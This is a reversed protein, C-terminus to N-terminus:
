LYIGALIVLAFVFILLIASVLDCTSFHLQKMRTRGAGGRYCRCDMADALEDARRTSSLLLPILIPLLAKIRKFISGSEFDTGRAKQASIIKGTEETLTPVFRLALTMMMALTHVAEALGFVRLPSLLSEIADTLETPTTTYTLVASIIILLIIRLSMYIARFIGSYSIKIIWWEFIVTGGSVYLANLVATFILIPLIVKINKFYMKLPVKSLLIIAFIAATMVYLGYFNKASFIFVIIAILELLKTRPDLKHVASNASYYQGLTLDNLM